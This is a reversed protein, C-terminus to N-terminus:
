QLHWSASQDHWPLCVPASSSYGYALQVKRCRRSLAIIADIGHWRRSTGDVAAVDVDRRSPSSQWHQSSDGAQLLVAECVVLGHWHLGRCLRQTVQCQTEALVRLAAHHAACSASPCHRQPLPASADRTWSRMCMHWQWERPVALLCCHDLVDHKLIHCTAKSHTHALAHRAQTAQDTAAPQM